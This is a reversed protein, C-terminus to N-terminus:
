QPQVPITVGSPSLSDPFGIVIQPNQGVSAPLILNIQYLGGFGPAVGAYAIASPDVPVGDLQVSFSAMQTLSAAAKPIMSYLIPPATQGLGTAYLVIVDGPSAPAAPTVLAGDARTAIALQDLQFLAPSTATLQIPIQPGAWSDVVVTLNVTGPILNAPVLFNIQTPSVYILNALINGVIVHVGTGPFVTPLIGSKVDDPSLAKTGYALNQGYITALTNPALTGPQNDASNVISDASYLPAEAQAFAAAFLLAVLLALLARM